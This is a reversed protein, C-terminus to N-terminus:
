RPEGNSVWHSFVITASPELKVDNYRPFEAQRTDHGRWSASDREHQRLVRASTNNSPKLSPKSFAIPRFLNQGQLNSQIAARRARSITLIEFRRETTSVRCRRESPSGKRHLIPHYSDYPLFGSFTRSFPAERRSSCALLHRSRTHKNPFLTDQAQILMQWIRGDKKHLDYGDVDGDNKGRAAFEEALEVGVFKGNKGRVSGIFKVTGYMDGPVNVSDGVELEEGDM